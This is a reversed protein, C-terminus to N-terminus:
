FLLHEAFMIEWFFRSHIFEDKDAVTDSKTIFLGIDKYDESKSLLSIEIQTNKKELYIHQLENPTSETSNKIQFDFADVDKIEIDYQFSYNIFMADLINEALKKDLKM